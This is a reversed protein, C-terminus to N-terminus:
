FVCVGYDAAIKVAWSWARNRMDCDCFGTFNRRGDHIGQTIDCTTEAEQFDVLSEFVVAVQEPKLLFAGPSTFLREFGPLRRTVECFTRATITEEAHVSYPKNLEAIAALVTQVTRGDNISLRADVLM